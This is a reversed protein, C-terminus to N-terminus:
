QELMAGDVAVGLRRVEPGVDDAQPRRRVGAGVDLAVAEGHGVGRALEAALFASEESSATAHVIVHGLTWAMTAEDAEAAYPDDADLDVPQFTVDADTCDAILELMTDVMENTLARLDDRDLGAVLENYAITKARYAAFDLM